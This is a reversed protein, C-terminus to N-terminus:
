LTSTRPAGGARRSELDKTTAEARRRQCRYCYGEKGKVSVIKEPRGIEAVAPCDDGSMCRNDPPPAAPERPPLPAPRFAPLVTVKRRTKASM